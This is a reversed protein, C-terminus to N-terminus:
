RTAGADGRYASVKSVELYFPGSAFSPNLDGMGYTFKSLMLQMSRVSSTRMARRDPSGVPVAEGRRVPQFDTFPVDM